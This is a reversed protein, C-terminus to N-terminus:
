LLPSITRAVNEKFKEWKSRQKFVDLSLEYSDAMDQVFDTELRVITAYDYMVANLEFNSFLSRMDLNATGVMGIVDDIIMVKAHMFGKQYQYVRIGAELMDEIYSLSALQVLKSDSVDPIMIKVDIGAQAATKLAMSLGQDPIFYPTQIYIRKKAAFIGGYYSQYVAKGTRDPGSAIMQVVAGSEERVRGMYATDDLKQGCTFLWDDLFTSQLYAVSGGEVMLHTDRWFGLKRDSGLYEDGINIGGTFGIEGDIVVTKRHNRYNLRKDFFSVFVPLFAYVEISNDQLQKRYSSSLAYSGLGDYLVRVQVGERAKHILAQLFRQGSQDDKIIYFQFHIHHKANAITALLAEYAEKANTLVRVKNNSTAVVGPMHAAYHLYTPYGQLSGKLVEYAEESPQNQMGLEMARIKRSIRKIKKRHHYDKALFYYMFAGFPPFVFLIVMWAVVKSPHRYQGILIFAIQIIFSALSIVLWLM